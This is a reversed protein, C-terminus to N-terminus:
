PKIYENVALSFQVKGPSKTDPTLTISTVLATRRNKELSELFKLFNGYPTSNKSSSNVIISLAYTGKINKVPKLQSDTKTNVAGLNSTPFTIAGLQVDNQAALNSIERVTQAQDKDQPVINKAIDALQRYKATDAKAKLLQSQTRELVLANARADRVDKSREKLFIQAFYVSAGVMIVSLGILCCLLIYVKKATLSM